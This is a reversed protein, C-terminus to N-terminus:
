LMAQGIEPEPPFPSSLRRVLGFETRRVGDEELANGPVANGGHIQGDAPFAALPQRHVPQLQVAELIVRHHRISGCIETPSHQQRRIFICRENEEGKCITLPANGWSIFLM